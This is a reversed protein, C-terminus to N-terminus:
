KRVINEMFFPERTQSGSKKYFFTVEYKTKISM